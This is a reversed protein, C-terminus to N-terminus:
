PFLGAAKWGGAVFLSGSRTLHITDLQMPGGDPAISQCRDEPCLVDLNSIYRAGAKEVATRLAADFGKGERLRREKELLTGDDFRMADALLGPLPRRYGVPNGVVYLRSNYRGVHDIVDLLPGIEDASWSAAFIIGDVRKTPILEHFIFNWLRDCDEPGDRMLTPNCTSYWANAFFLEPFAESLGFRLHASFSDGLLLFNPKDESLRLCQSWDVSQSSTPNCDGERFHARAANTDFGDFALVEPAFRQPLGHAAVLVAGLVLSAASAAAAATFMLPRTGMLRRQRFPREVFKWSLWAVLVAAGILAAAEFAGPTGFRQEYFLFIPWHWLYLSYSLLGIGVFPPTSLLRNVRAEGGAMIILLAGLCCPVALLGPFPSAPTVLMVSGAILILGALGAAERLIKNGLAPVLGFAFAVGAGFEWSRAPLLYFALDPRERIAWQSFLLSALTFFWFIPALRAPAYRYVVILAIPFVLYFQEEVGLSWTHLLPAGANATAFYDTEWWFYFNSVFLATAIASEGFNELAEPLLLYAAVVATVAMMAFLAPLIRRARREYFALLSFSGAAMETCVIQGILFGSIVFFIDVGVFGGGFGPAEAHFLVVAAVAVARLGDIDPRYPRARASERLAPDVPEAGSRATTCPRDHVVPRFQRHPGDSVPGTDRDSERM